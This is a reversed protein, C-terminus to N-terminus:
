KNEKGPVNQHNSSNVPVKKGKRINDMIEVLEKSLYGQEILRERTELSREDFIFQVKRKKPM